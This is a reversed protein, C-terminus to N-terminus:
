ALILHAGRPNLIVYRGLFSKHSHEPSRFLDATSEPQTPIAALYPRNICIGPGKNSVGMGELYQYM